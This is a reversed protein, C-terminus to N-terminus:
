MSRRRALDSRSKEVSRQAAAANSNSNRNGNSNCHSSSDITYAYPILLRDNLLGYIPSEENVLIARLQHPLANLIEAVNIATKPNLKQHKLWNKMVIFSQGAVIEFYVKDDSEFKVLLKKLESEDIGTDFAMRPLTIAYIGAMNTLPNTMLYDFFGRGVIGISRHWEDDWKATDVLRNKAM